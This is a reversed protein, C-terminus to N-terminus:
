RRVEIWRALLYVLDLIVAWTGLFLVTELSWDVDVYHGLALVAAFVLVRM